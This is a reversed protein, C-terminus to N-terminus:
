GAVVLQIETLYKRPNGKFIMGPGKLYVERSPLLIEHDHDKMYQLVTAYSRGLEEYPGRHLISVCRGGPLERVSIGAVDVRRRIPFCPEMDADEERYEGDYYLCFPKGCIHRGVAKGLKAFGQGCDSYKGKMRVGAIWMPELAKEEIQFPSKQMTSRAENEIQIIRDLQAVIDKRHRIEQQLAGKRQELFDLIDAEDDYSILIQQIQELSFEFRRLAVIIQAKEVNAHDYYRYGSDPDVTAPVLLGKEHYFRLTKIPLGSIKSFEGIGFM